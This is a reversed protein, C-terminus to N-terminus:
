LKYADLFIVSEVIESLEEKRKKKKKKQLAKPTSADLSGSHHYELKGCAPILPIFEWIQRESPSFLM